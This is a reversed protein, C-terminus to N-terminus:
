IFITIYAIDAIYDGLFSENEVEMWKWAQQFSM